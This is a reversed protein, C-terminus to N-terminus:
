TFWKFLGSFSLKTKWNFGLGRSIFPIKRGKVLKQLGGDGEQSKVAVELVNFHHQHHHRSRQFSNPIENEYLLSQKLTLSLCFADYTEWSACTSFQSEEMSM